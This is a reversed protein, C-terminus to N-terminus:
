GVEDIVQYFRESQGLFGDFSRYKWETDTTNDQIPKARAEILDILLGNIETRKNMKTKFNLGLLVHFKKSNEVIM